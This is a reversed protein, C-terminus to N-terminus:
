RPLVKVQAVGRRARRGIRATTKGNGRRTIIKPITGVGSMKNELRHTAVALDDGTDDGLLVGIRPRLGAHHEAFARGGARTLDVQGDSGAVCGRELPPELPVVFGEVEAPRIQTHRVPQFQNATAVSESAGNGGVARVPGLDGTEIIRHGGIQEDAEGDGRVVHRHEVLRDEVIHTQNEGIALGEVDGSRGAGVRGRDSALRKMEGRLAEAAIQRLREVRRIVVRSANRRLSFVGGGTFNGGVGEVVVGGGFPEVEGRVIRVGARAPNLVALGVVHSADDGM